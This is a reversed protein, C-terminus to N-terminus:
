CLSYGRLGREMWINRHAKGADSGSGMLPGIAWRNAQGLLPWLVDLGANEVGYREGADDEGKHAKAFTGELLWPYDPRKGM